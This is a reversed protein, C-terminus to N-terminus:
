NEDDFPISEDEGDSNQLLLEVKQEAEKLTKQCMRTLKVGEEFKKMADDLSLTGSELEEVLLELDALTKELNIPKDSSM